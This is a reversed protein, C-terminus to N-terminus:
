IAQISIGNETVVKDLDILLQEVLRGITKQNNQNAHIDSLHLIGINKEM